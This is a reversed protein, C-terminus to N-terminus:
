DRMIEFRETRHRWFDIKQSESFKTYSIQARNTAGGTGAFLAARGVRGGDGAEFRAISSSLM